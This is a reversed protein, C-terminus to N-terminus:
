RICIGAEDTRVHTRRNERLVSSVCFTKYGGELHGNRRKRRGELIAINRGRIALPEEHVGQHLIGRWRWDCDYEVPGAAMAELQKVARQSEIQYPKKM